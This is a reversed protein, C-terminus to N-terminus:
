LGVLRYFLTKEANAPGTLDFRGEFRNFSGGLLEIERTTTELPRKSVYNIIGSPEGQGYLVSSPGRLVEIREAGYPDLCKFTSFATGRLSQGDKYFLTDSEDRFGRLQLGYCRNEVGAIESSVGPTYRLAQALTQVGQAKMQDATVVSISQPTEILPTDTKSGTASRTAVYGQVPGTASEIKPPPAEIPPPVRKALQKKGKPQKARRSTDVDVPPLAVRGSGQPQQAAEQARTAQKHLVAISVTMIALVLVGARRPLRSGHM